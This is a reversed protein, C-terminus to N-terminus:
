VVLIPEFPRVVDIPDTLVMDGAQIWCHASFPLKVGIVFDACLGQRDLLRKMALGRVLCQDISAIYRRSRYFAAAIILYDTPSAPMSIGERAEFTAVIAELPRLWLECRAYMQAAVARCIARAGCAPMPLDLISSRAPLAVRSVFEPAAAEGSIVKRERLWEVDASSAGGTMFREFRQAAIDRLLFYRGTRLCLFLFISGMRRYRFHPPVAAAGAVNAASPSQVM